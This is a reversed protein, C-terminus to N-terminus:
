LIDPQIKILLNGTGESFATVSSAEISLKSERVLRNAGTIRSSAVRAGKPTLTASTLAITGGTLNTTDIEANLTALKSATSVAKDAVFEMHTIYGKVGPRIETVVDAATISALDLHLSLIIPPSAWVPLWGRIKTGAAWSSGSLNTLTIDSNGFTFSVGPDADSLKDNDDLMVNGAGEKYNGANFTLQSTGSPYAVTVTGDDAVATGLTVEFTYGENPIYAM